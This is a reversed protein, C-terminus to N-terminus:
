LFVDLFLKNPKEFEKTQPFFESVEEKTMEDIQLNDVHKVKVCITAVRKGKQNIRTTIKRLQYFRLERECFYPMRYIEGKYTKYIRM